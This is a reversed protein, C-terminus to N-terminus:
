SHASDPPAVPLDAGTGFFHQTEEISLTEIEPEIWIMRAKPELLTSIPTETVPGTTM